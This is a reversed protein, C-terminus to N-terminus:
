VEPAGPALVQLAANTASALDQISDVLTGDLDFVLVRVDKM